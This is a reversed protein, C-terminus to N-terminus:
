AQYFGALFGDPRPAKDRNMLFIAYRVEDESFPAILNENLERTIFKPINRLMVTEASDNDPQYSSFM